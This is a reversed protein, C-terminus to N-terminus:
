SGSTKSKQVFSLAFTVHACQSDYLPISSQALERKRVVPQDINSQNFKMCKHKGKCRGVSATVESVVSENKGM